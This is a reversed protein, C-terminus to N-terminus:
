FRIVQARGIERYLARSYDGPAQPDFKIKIFGEAELYKLRHVFKQLAADGNQFDADDSEDQYDTGM